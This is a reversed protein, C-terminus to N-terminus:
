VTPLETIFDWENAYQPCKQSEYQVDTVRAAGSKYVTTGLKGPNCKPIFIGGYKVNENPALFLLSYYDKEGQAESGGISLISTEPQAFTGNLLYKEGLIDPSVSGDELAKITGYTLNIEFNDTIADGEYISATPTTSTIRSIANINHIPFKNINNGYLYVELETFAKSADANITDLTGTGMAQLLSELTIVEALKFQVNIGLEMIEVKRRQLPSGGKHVFDKNEFTWSFGDPDVAGIRRWKLYEEYATVVTNKVGLFLDGGGSKMCELIHEFDM